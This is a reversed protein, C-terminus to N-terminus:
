LRQCPGVRAPNGPDVTLGYINQAKIERLAEGAVPSWVAGYNGSRMVGAFDTGVFVEGWDSMSLGLAFGRELATDTFTQAFDLSVAVGGGLMGAYVVGRRSPDLALSLVRGNRPSGARAFTQGGDFSRYVGDGDTGAYITQSDRPDIAIAFVTSAVSLPSWSAGGNVSKFAGGGGTGAYLIEPNERDIQITWVPANPLGVNAEAWTAGGDISKQLRPPGMHGSYVIWWRLPDVAITFPPSATQTLFTWNAGGDSTQYIESRLSGGGFTGLYIRDIDTRHAAMATVALNALGNNTPRFSHGKDTSKLVGGGFTGIYIIGSGVPGIAVPAFVAPPSPGVAEWAARQASTTPAGIILSLVVISTARIWCPRSPM